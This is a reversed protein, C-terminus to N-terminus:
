TFTPSGQSLESLRCYEDYSLTLALVRILVKRLSSDSILGFDINFFEKDFKSHENCVQDVDVIGMTTYVRYIRTRPYEIISISEVQMGLRVATMFYEMDPMPSVETSNNVTELAKFM